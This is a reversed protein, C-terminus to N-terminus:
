DFRRILRNAQERNMGIHHLWKEFAGKYKNHNSLREQAEKLERGLDTYAKGVIERMKSEKIRLFEATSDDLQEYRFKDLENAM